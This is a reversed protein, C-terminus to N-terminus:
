HGAVAAHAVLMRGSRVVSAMGMSVPKMSVPNGLPAASASQSTATPADVVRPWSVMSDTCFETSATNGGVCRQIWVSAGTLTVDWYMVNLVGTSDAAALWHPRTVNVSTCTVGFSMGPDANGLSHGAEMSMAGVSFASSNM